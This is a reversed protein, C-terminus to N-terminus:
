GQGEVLPPCIVREGPFILNPNGSRLLGDNAAMLRVWYSAIEGDTLAEAPRGTAEALHAAAIDWLNDGPVVEHTDTSAEPARARGPSV